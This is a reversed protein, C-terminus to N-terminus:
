FWADDNEIHAICETLSGNFLTMWQENHRQFDVTCNEGKTDLLTIRAYPYEMYKGDILPKIFIAGEPKFQEILEYLYVRNARICIRSVKQSLKQQEAINENVRAMLKEKDASSFRPPSPKYVWVYQNQKRAKKAM